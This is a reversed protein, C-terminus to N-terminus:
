RREQGLRADLSAYDAVSKKGSFTEDQSGDAFPRIGIEVGEQQMERMTCSRTCRSPHTSRSGAPPRAPPRRRPLTPPPLASVNVLEPLALLDFHYANNLPDSEIDTYEINIPGLKAGTLAEWWSLNHIPATFHM